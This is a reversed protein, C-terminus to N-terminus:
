QNGGNASRGHGGAPANDKWPICRQYMRFYRISMNGEPELGIERLRNMVYSVTEPLHEGAEAHKHLYHRDEQMQAELQKARELFHNM